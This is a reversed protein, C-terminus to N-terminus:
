EHTRLCRRKKLHGFYKYHPIGYSWYIAYHNNHLCRFIGHICCKSCWSKAINANALPIWFEKQSVILFLNLAQPNLNPISGVFSLQHDPDAIPWRILAPRNVLGKQKLQLFQGAGMRIPSKLWTSIQQSFLMTLQSHDLLSRCEYIIVKQNLHQVSSDSTFHTQAQNKGICLDDFVPPLRLQLSRARTSNM